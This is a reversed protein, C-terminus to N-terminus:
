EEAVEWLTLTMVQGGNGDSAQRWGGAEVPIGNRECWHLSADLIDDATAWSDVSEAVVELRSGDPRALTVLVKRKM